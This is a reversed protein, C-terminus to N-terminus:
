QVIISSEAQWVYDSSGGREQATRKARICVRGIGPLNVVAIMEDARATAPNPLTELVEAIYHGPIHSLIAEPM